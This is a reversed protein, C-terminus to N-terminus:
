ATARYFRRLRSEPTRSLLEAKADDFSLERHDAYSQVLHDTVETWNIDNVSCSQWLACGDAQLPNGYTSATVQGFPRRDEHYGRHSETLYHRVENDLDIMLSVEGAARQIMSLAWTLLPQSNDIHLLLERQNHSETM